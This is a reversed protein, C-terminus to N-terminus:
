CRRAYRGGRLSSEGACFRPAPAGPVDRSSALFSRPGMAGRRKATTDCLDPAEYFRYYSAETAVGGPHLRKSTLAWAELRAALPTRRAPTTFEESVEDIVVLDARRGGLAAPDQSVQAHQSKAGGKPAKRKKAPKADAPKPPYLPGLVESFEVELFKVLGLHADPDALVVGAVSDLPQRFAPQKVAMDIVEPWRPRREGWIENQRKRLVSGVDLLAAVYRPVFHFVRGGDGNSCVMKSNFLTTTLPTSLAHCLADWEGQPPLPENTDRRGPPPVSTLQWEVVIFPAITKADLYVMNHRPIPVWGAEVISAMIKRGMMKEGVRKCAYCPIIVAGHAYRRLRRDCQRCGVEDVLLVAALSGPYTQM